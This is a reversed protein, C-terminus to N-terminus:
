DVEQNNGDTRDDDNKKVEDDIMKWVADIMEKCRRFDKARAKRNMEICFAEEKKLIVDVYDDFTCVPHYPMMVSKAGRGEDDYTYLNFIIIPQRTDRTISWYLKDLKLTKM